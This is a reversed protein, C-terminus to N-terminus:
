ALSSQRSQDVVIGILAVQGVALVASFVATASEIGIPNTLQPYTDPPEFMPGAKLMGALIVCSLSLGSLWAFPRWRQSPLRGTPFLLIGFTTPLFFAPIWVWAQIWFFLSLEPLSGPATATIYQAYEDALPTIIFALSAFLFIWGLPNGPRHAASMAGVTILATMTVLMLATSALDMDAAFTGNVYALLVACCTFVIWLVLLSLALCTTWRANM